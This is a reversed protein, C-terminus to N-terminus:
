YKQEIVIEQNSNVYGYLRDSISSTNYKANSKVALGESPYELGLNDLSLSVVENGKSDIYGTERTWSSSLETQVEAVGNKFEGIRYYKGFDVVTRGTKDIVGWEGD